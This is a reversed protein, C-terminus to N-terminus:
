KDLANAKDIGTAVAESLKEALANDSTTNTGNVVKGGMPMIITSQLQSEYETLLEVEGDLKGDKCAARLPTIRLSKYEEGKGASNPDLVADRLAKRSMLRVKEAEEPM